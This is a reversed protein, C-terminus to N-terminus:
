CSSASATPFSRGRRGSTSRAATGTPHPSSDRRTCTAAGRRSASRCAAPWRWTANTCPSPRSQRVCRWSRRPVPPSSTSARGACISSTPSAPPSTTRRTASCRCSARAAAARRTPLPSERPLLHQQVHERVRRDIRRLDGPRIRRARAGGLGDRPLCATASRHGRGRAPEDQLVGRRVAGSRRPDRACARLRFRRPEGHRSPEIARARGRRLPLDDGKGGRPEGLVGRRRARGPLSRGARRDRDRGAPRLRRRLVHSSKGKAARMRALAEKQREAREKTGRTAIATREGRESAEGALSGDPVPLAGRDPSGRPGRRSTARSSSRTAALSRGPRLLQRGDRDPGGRVARALDRGRDGGDARGARRVGCDLPAPAAGGDHGGQRADRRSAARARERATSDPETGIAELVTRLDRLM